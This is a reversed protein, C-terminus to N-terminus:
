KRGWWGGLLNSLGGSAAASPEPTPARQIEEAKAKAVPAKQPQPAQVHLAAKTPIHIAPTPLKGSREQLSEMDLEVYNLAIDFFLPKKHGKNDANAAGGNFTFWDKKLVASNATIEEELASCESATIQYFSTNASPADLTSLVSRTERLHLLARQILTLSEAYRKLPSYCRALYM